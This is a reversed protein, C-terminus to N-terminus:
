QIQQQQQEQQRMRQEREDQMAPILGKRFAVDLLDESSRIEEPYENMAWKLYLKFESWDVQGDSDMDLCQLGDITESCRYCSFYPAMFGNYFSDFELMDDKQFLSSIILQTRFFSNESIKMGKWIGM